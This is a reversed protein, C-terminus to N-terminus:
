NKNYENFPNVIKYNKKLKDNKLKLSIANILDISQKDNYNLLTAKDSISINILLINDILIITIVKEKRLLFNKSNIIYKLTYLNENDKKIKLSFDISIEAIITELSQKSYNLYRYYSIRELLNKFHQFLLITFLVYSIFILLYKLFLTEVIFIISFFFGSFIFLHILIPYLYWFDIRERSNKIIFNIDKM